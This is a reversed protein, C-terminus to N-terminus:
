VMKFTLCMIPLAIMNSISNSTDRSFGHRVLEYEYGADFFKLGQYFVLMFIILRFYQSKPNLFTRAYSVIELVSKKTGKKEFDLSTETFIFHMVLVTAVYTISLVRMVVSPSTFAEEMGLKHAFERSTLKLLLLSGLVTGFSAAISQLQSAM